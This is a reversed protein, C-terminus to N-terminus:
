KDGKKWNEFAEVSDELHSTCGQLHKQLDEYFKDFDATGEVATEFGRFFDSNGAHYKGDEEKYLYIHSYESTEMTWYDFEDERTDMIKKLEDKTPLKEMKIEKLIKKWHMQVFNKFTDCRTLILIEGDFKTKFTYEKNNKVVEYATKWKKEM